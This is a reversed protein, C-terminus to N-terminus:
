QLLFYFQYFGLLNFRLIKRMRVEDASTGKYIYYIGTTIISLVFLTSVVLVLEM